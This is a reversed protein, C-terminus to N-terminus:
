EESIPRELNYSSNLINSFHAYFNDFIEEEEM